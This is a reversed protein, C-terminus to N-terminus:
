NWRELSDRMRGRLGEEGDNEPRLLPFILDCARVAYLHTSRLLPGGAVESEEKMERMLELVREGYRVLNSDDGQETKTKTKNLLDMEDGDSEASESNNNYYLYELGEAYARLLGTRLKMLRGSGNGVPIGCREVADQVYREAEEILGVRGACLVMATYAWIDPVANSHLLAQKWIRHSLKYSQQPSPHLSAAKLYLNLGERKVRESVYPTSSSSLTSTSASSSPGDDSLLYNLFSLTHSATATSSSADM